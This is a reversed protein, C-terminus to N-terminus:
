STRSRRCLHVRRRPPPVLAALAQLEDMNFSPDNIQRGKKEAVKNEEKAKASATNDGM